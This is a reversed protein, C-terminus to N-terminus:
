FLIESRLKFIDNIEKELYPMRLVYPKSYSPHFIGLRLDSIKINYNNELIFKYISLQLAYHYYPTNDLHELPSNGKENYKSIKIPMGNAIIKDSRKWDYLIYEGNQYDVFDITGAINHKIDYVVWETRYPKLKVKEAFMLFLKFTDDETSAIDHYYNEIKKHLETGLERSEKSKQKWMDLVEQTTIGMNAAKKKAFLETNFKPFCGNIFNTVSQLTVGNVKYSHADENFSIHLDRPHRNRQNFRFKEKRIEEERRLREARIKEQERKIKQAEEHEKNLIDFWLKILNLRRLTFEVKDTRKNKRCFIFKSNKNKKYSSDFLNRISCASITEFELDKIYKPNRLWLINYLREYSTEIYQEIDDLHRYIFYSLESEQIKSILTQFSESKHCEIRKTEENLRNLYDQKSKRKLEEWKDYAERELKKYNEIESEVKVIEDKLASCRAKIVSFDELPKSTLSLGIGFHRKLEYEANALQWILSRKHSESASIVHFYGSVYEEESVATKPHICNHINEKGFSNLKEKYKLYESKLKEIVEDCKIPYNIKIYRLIRKHQLSANDILINPIFYKIIFDKIDEYHYETSIKECCDNCLSAYHNPIYKKLSLIKRCENESLDDVSFVHDYNGAHFDKLVSSYITQTKPRVACLNINTHKRIFKPFLAENDYYLLAIKAKDSQSCQLKKKFGIIEQKKSAFFLISIPDKDCAYLPVNRNMIAYLKLDDYHKNLLDTFVSYYDEIELYYKKQENSLKEWSFLSDIDYKAIFTKQEESWGRGFNNERLELWHEIKMYVIKLTFLDQILTLATAWM